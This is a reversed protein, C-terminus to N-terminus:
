LQGSPDSSAYPRRYSRSSPGADHFRSRRDDYIRHNTASGRPRDEVAIDVLALGSSVTRDSNREAMLTSIRWFRASSYRPRGLQDAIAVCDTCFATFSYDGNSLRDSEGHGRLDITV